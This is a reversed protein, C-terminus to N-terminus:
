SGGERTPGCLEAEHLARLANSKLTVEFLQDDDIYSSLKPPSPSQQVATTAVQQVQTSTSTAFIDQLQWGTSAPELLAGFENIEYVTNETIPTCVRQDMLGQTLEQFGPGYLRESHAPQTLM